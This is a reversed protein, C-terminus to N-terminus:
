QGCVDKSRGDWRKSHTHMNSSPIEHPFLCSFEWILGFLFACREGSLICNFTSVTKNKGFILSMVVGNTHFM